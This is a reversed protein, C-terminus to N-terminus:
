ASPGARKHQNKRHTLFGCGHEREHRELARRAEEASRSRARIEDSWVPSLEIVASFYARVNGDYQDILEQRQSCM